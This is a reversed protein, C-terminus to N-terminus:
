SCCGLAPNATMGSYADSGGCELGLILESAPSKERKNKNLIPLMQKIIEVGEQITKRTGGVEQITMM